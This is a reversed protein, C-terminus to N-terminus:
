EVVKDWYGKLMGVGYSLHITLFIFPIILVSLLDDNRFGEYVSFLIALLVYALLPLFWWFSISNTNIGIVGGTISPNALITLILLGLYVAFLSPIFFFPQNLTELFREKKPRFKGYNFIQKVLSRFDPRRKHHVVIDPSYAIRFGENIADSIFKPDEAPFLNEDFRVKEVVRKRCVLNASTLDKEDAELNKEMKGYRGSLKWAG